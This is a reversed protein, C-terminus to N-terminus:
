RNGYEHGRTRMTQKLADIRKIKDTREQAAAMSSRKNNMYSESYDASNTVGNRKNHEGLQKRDSIITGDINSKFPEIPKMIYASRSPAAAHKYIKKKVEDSRLKRDKESGFINEFNNGYAKQDYGDRRTSNSRTM